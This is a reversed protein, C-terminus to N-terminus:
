DLAQWGPQWPDQWSAKWGLTKQVRWMEEKLLHVEETWCLCRACAKAWEIQVAPFQFDHWISPEKGEHLMANDDDGVAGITTWIWSVPKKGQGLDLQEAMRKKKPLMQGDPGM